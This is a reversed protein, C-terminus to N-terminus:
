KICFFGAQMYSLWFIEVIRFGVSDLLKLHESIKIPFYKDDYKLDLINGVEFNM